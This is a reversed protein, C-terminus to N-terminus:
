EQAHMPAQIDRVCKCIDHHLLFTKICIDRMCLRRVLWQMMTLNYISHTDLMSSHATLQMCVMYARDNLVHVQLRLPRQYFLALTPYCFMSTKRM